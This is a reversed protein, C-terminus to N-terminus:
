RQTIGIVLVLIGVVIFLASIFGIVYMLSQTALVKLLSNNDIVKMDIRHTLKLGFCSLWALFIGGAMIVIGVVVDSVM